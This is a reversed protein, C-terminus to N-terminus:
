VYSTTPYPPEPVPQRPGPPPGYANAGPDGPLCMQVLLVIAGALPILGFLLWWASHGRDHLRTVQSSFSPVLVLLTVVLGIPGTGTAFSSGSNTGIFDLGLAADLVSAVTGVVLLVLFYHLWYTRRDIRGRRLYWNGVNM